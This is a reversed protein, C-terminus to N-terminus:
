GVIDLQEVFLRMLETIFEKNENIDMCESDAKWEDSGVTRYITYTGFGIKSIWQFEFGEYEDNVFPEAKDIRLDIEKPYYKRTM